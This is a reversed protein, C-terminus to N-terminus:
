ESFINLINYIIKRTVKTYSFQEEETNKGAVVFLFHETFIKNQLWVFKLLM